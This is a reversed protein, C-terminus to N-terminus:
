PKSERRFAFWDNANDFDKVWNLDAKREAGDWWVGCALRFGVFSCDQTAVVYMPDMGLERHLNPKHEGIAFVRRPNTQKLGFTQAWAIARNWSGGSPGFNVLINEENVVEGATPPYQDAVKWVNYDSPTNPGASKVAEDWPRGSSVPVTVIHIRGGEPAVLEPYLSLKRGLRAAELLVGVNGNDLAHDQFVECGVGKAKAMRRLEDTQASTVDKAM